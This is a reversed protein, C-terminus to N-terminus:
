WKLRSQPGPSRATGLPSGQPDMEQGRGYGGKIRSVEPRHLQLIGRTGRSRPLEWHQRRMRTGGPLEFPVKTLAGAFKFPYVTCSLPHFTPELKM